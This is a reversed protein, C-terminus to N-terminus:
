DACTKLYEEYKEKIFNYMTVSHAGHENAEELSPFVFAPIEKPEETEVIRYGNQVQSHDAHAKVPCRKKPFLFMAEPLGSPICKCTCQEVKEKPLPFINNLKSQMQLFLTKLDANHHVDKTAEPEKMECDKEIGRSKCQKGTTACALMIQECQDPEKEAEVPVRYILEECWLGDIGAHEWVNTINSWYQATSPKEWSRDTVIRYKGNETDLHIPRRYKFNPYWRGEAISRNNLVEWSGDSSYEDGTQKKDKTKDIRRYITESMEVGELINNAFHNQQFIKIETDKKV